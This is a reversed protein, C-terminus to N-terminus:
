ERRVTAYHDPYRDMHQLLADRQAQLSPLLEDYVDSFLTEVSSKPAASASNLAKVASARSAKRIDDEMQPSWWGRSHMFRGFRIIPSRAEWYARESDWGVEPSQPNRYKSDDDSTSHAGMRYTMAEILTPLGEELAIRRAKQTAVIVALVDNGDVRITPLGYAPGRPAIGDGAYQDTAGALGPYM